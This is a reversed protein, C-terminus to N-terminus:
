TSWNEPLLDPVEYVRVPYHLGKVQIEGHEKYAIQDKVTYIITEYNM